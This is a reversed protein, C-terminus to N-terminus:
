GLLFFRTTEMITRTQPFVLEMLKRTDFLLAWVFPSDDTDPNRHPFVRSVVTTHEAYACVQDQPKAPVLPMKGAYTTTLRTSVQSLM